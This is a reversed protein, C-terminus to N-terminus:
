RPKKIVDGSPPAADALLIEIVDTILDLSHKDNETVLLRVKGSRDLVVSTPFGQFNPIQQITPQNGILCTYPIGTEKVFRKVVARKQSESSMQQEYTLGVIELGRHHRSRYLDILRPLAERCPGCWTGWYDVLVVKGKFDALSVQKGDLDALTFDFALDVPRDLLDKVRQRAEAVRAETRAKLAARFQPFSRLPAMSEDIEVPSYSDLGTEVAEKLLALAQDNRGQKVRIKAQTYLVQGFLQQENPQPAEYVRRLTRILKEANDVAAANDKPSTALRAQDLALAARGLLALRNFPEVGLVQDLLRTATAIDGRQVSLMAVSLMRETDNAGSTTGASNARTAGSGAQGDPGPFSPLGGISQGGAGEAGIPAAKQAAPGPYFPSVGPDPKLEEEQSCGAPVSCAWASVLIALLLRPGVRDVCM